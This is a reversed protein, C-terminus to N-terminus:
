QWKVQLTSDITAKYHGDVVMKGNPPMASEIVTDAAYFIAIATTKTGNKSGFIEGAAFPPTTESPLLIAFKVTPEENTDSNVFVHVSDFSKASLNQVEINYTKGGGCSALLLALPLCQKM